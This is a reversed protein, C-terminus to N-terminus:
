VATNSNTTDDTLTEWDDCHEWGMFYRWWCNDRHNCIDCTKEESM